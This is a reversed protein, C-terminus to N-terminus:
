WDFNIPVWAPCFTARYSLRNWGDCRYHTDNPAYSQITHKLLFTFIIIIIVFSNTDYKRHKSALKDGRSM